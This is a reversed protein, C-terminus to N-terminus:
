VNAPESKHEQVIRVEREKKTSEGKLMPMGVDKGSDRLNRFRKLAEVGLKIAKEYDRHLYPMLGAMSVEITEIAEDITM